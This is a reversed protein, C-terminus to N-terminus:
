YAFVHNHIRKIVKRSLIWTDKLKAPNYFFLAGSTPDEGNLAARAAKINERNPKLKIQGNTVSEFAQPQYIVGRLSDPFSKNKMRNLVVAAVAVQGKYPEGRAEAHVVRALLNVDEETYIRGNRGTNSKDKVEKIVVKSVAPSSNESAFVKEIVGVFYAVKKLEGQFIEVYERQVAVQLIPRLAEIKYLYKISPIFILLLFILILILEIIMKINSSKKLM